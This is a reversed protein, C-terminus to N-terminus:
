FGVILDITWLFQSRRTGDDFPSFATPALPSYWDWRAETRVVCRETPRYNIGLSIDQWHGPVPELDIGTPAGLGRVRVGDDDSFWEQRIGLSWCDNIDCTLYNVIGYWEADQRSLTADNEYAYDGHLVYNLCHCFEHQLVASLLVRNQVGLDDQPGSTASFSVTTPSDPCMWALGGLFDADGNNDDWVDWGRTVGLSLMFDECLKGTALFGAHTFPEGYQMAYSHSVFFNDPATVTEYGLISYFRGLQLKWDCIAMEAYMQPLSFKYFRSDQDSILDDDLGRATTFRADTGYLLDIRGGIDFFQCPSTQTGRALVAYLQNLQYKNPRDVFTVPGNFRQRKPALANASFSQAVWGEARFGWDNEGLLGGTEIGSGSCAENCDTARDWNCQQNGWHSVRRRANRFREFYYGCDAGDSHCHWQAASYIPVDRVSSEGDGTDSVTAISGSFTDSYLPIRSSHSDPRRRAALRTEKPLSPMSESIAPSNDHGLYTDFEIFAVEASQDRKAIAVPENELIQTDRRFSPEINLSDAYGNKREKWAYEIDRHRETDSAPSNQESRTRPLDVVDTSGDFDSTTSGAIATTLLLAKAALSLMVRRVGFFPIIRM